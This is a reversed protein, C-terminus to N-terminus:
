ADLAAILEPIVKHLDGVMGYDAVEFIPAAENNNIAIIYDSDQM